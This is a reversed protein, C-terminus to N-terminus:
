RRPLQNQQAPKTASRAATLPAAAPAAPTDIVGQQWLMALQRDTLQERDAATMEEGPQYTRCGLSLERRAIVRGAADFTPRAFPSM